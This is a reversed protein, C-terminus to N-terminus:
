APTPQAVPPAAAPAAAADAAADAQLMGGAANHAELADERSEFFAQYFEGALSLTVTWRDNRAPAVGVTCAAAAPGVVARFIGDAPAAIDLLQLTLERSRPGGVLGSGLAQQGAALAAMRRKRGRGGDGDGGGDGRAAGDKAANQRGRPRGEGRAGRAGGGGGEKAGGSRKVPAKKIHDNKTAPRGAMLLSSDTKQAFVMVDGVGLEYASHLEAAGELLYMRSSNNVWFRWKFNYTRGELDNAQITIGSAMELRPFYQEAIVKPVVVRGTGSTDSATLAKEFFVKAGADEFRKMVAAAQTEAGGGEGAEAEAADDEEDDQQPAGEAADAMAVDGSGPAAEHVPKPDPTVAAETDAM